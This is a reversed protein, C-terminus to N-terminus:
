LNPSSIVWSGSRFAYGELQNQCIIQTRTNV